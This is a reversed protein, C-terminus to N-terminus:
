DRGLAVPWSAAAWEDGVIERWQAKLRVLTGGGRRRVVPAAIRAVAVGVARLGGQRESQPMPAALGPRRNAADMVAIREARESGSGAANSAQYSRSRRSRGHRAGAPVGGSGYRTQSLSIM